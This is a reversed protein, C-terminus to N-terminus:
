QHRIELLAARRSQVGQATAAHQGIGDGSPLDKVVSDVLQVDSDEFDVADITECDSALFLLLAYVLM